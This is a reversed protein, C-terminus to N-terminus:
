DTDWTLHKGPIKLNAHCFGLDVDKGWFMTKCYVLERNFPLGMKGTTWAVIRSTMKSHGKNNVSQKYKTDSKDESYIWFWVETSNLKTAWDDGVRQSGMFRLVGPRGIWWWSGSDVWVWEVWDTIGDLWRMRQWGKRRKGETKGLRLTKELSDTRGM